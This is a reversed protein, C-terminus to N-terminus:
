QFPKLAIHHNPAKEITFCQGDFWVRQGWTLGIHQRKSERTSSLIVANKNFWRLQHGREMANLVSAVPDEHYQRAYDIVTGATFIHWLHGHRQSPIKLAYTQGTRIIPMEEDRDADLMNDTPAVISYAPFDEIIRAPKTPRTPMNMTM